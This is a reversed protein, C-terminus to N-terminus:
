EQRPIIDYQISTGLIIPALWFHQDLPLTVDVFPCFPGLFSCLLDDTFQFWCNLSTQLIHFFVESWGLLKDWRECSLGWVRNAGFLGRQWFEVSSYCRQSSSESTVAFLFFVFCLHVANLLKKKVSCVFHQLVFWMWKKVSCKNYYFYVVNDYLPVLSTLALKQIFDNAKQNISFVRSVEQAKWRSLLFFPTLYKLTCVM